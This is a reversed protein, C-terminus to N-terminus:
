PNRFGGTQNPKPPPAGRVQALLEEIAAVVVEPQERAILHGSGAVVRMQGCRSQAAHDRQLAHWGERLQDQVTPPLIAPIPPSDAVLVLLPVDGIGPFSRFLTQIEAQLRAEGCVRRHFAMIEPEHRLAKPLHAWVEDGQRPHTADLLLVGTVCEPYRQAFQLATLGGFSSAALLFPPEGDGQALDHRLQQAAVDPRVLWDGKRLVVRHSALLPALETLSQDLVLTPQRDLPNPQSM